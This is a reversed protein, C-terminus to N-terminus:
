NVEISAAMGAFWGAHARFRAMAEARSAGDVVARLLLSRQGREVFLWHERRWRGAEEFLWGESRGDGGFPSSGAVVMDAHEPQLAVGSLRAEAGRTLRTRISAPTDSDSALHGLLRVRAERHHPEVGEIQLATLEDSTRELTVGPPVRMVTGFGENAYSLGEAGDSLSGTDARSILRVRLLSLRDPDRQLQLRFRERSISRTEGGLACWDAILDVTVVTGVAGIDIIQPAALSSSAGSTLGPPWEGFDRHLLGAADGRRWAGFLEMVFREIPETCPWMSTLMGDQRFSVSLELARDLGDTRPAWILHPVGDLHLTADPEPTAAAICAGRPLEVVHRMPTGAVLEVPIRLTYGAGEPVLGHVPVLTCSVVRHIRHGQLAGGSERIQLSSSEGGAACQWDVECARGHGDVVRGPACQVFGPTDVAVAADSSADGRYGRLSLEYDVEGTARVSWVHEM